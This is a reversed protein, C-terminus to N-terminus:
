VELEFKISARRVQSLLLHGILGNPNPELHQSPVYLEKTLDRVIENTSDISKKQSVPRFPTSM